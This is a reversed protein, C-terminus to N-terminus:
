KTKKYAIISQMFLYLTNVDAASKIKHETIATQVFDNFETPKILQRGTAYAVMPVVMFLSEIAADLKGERALSDSKEIM